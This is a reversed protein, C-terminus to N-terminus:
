IEEINNAITNLKSVFENVEVYADTLHSKVDMVPLNRAACVCGSVRCPM